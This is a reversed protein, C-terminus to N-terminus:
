SETPLSSNKRSIAANLRTVWMAADLCTQERQALHRELQETPWLSLLRIIESEKDLHSM